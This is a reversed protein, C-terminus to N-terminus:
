TLTYGAALLATAQPATVEVAAHGAWWVQAVDSWGDVLPQGNQYTTYPDVNTVVGVEAPTGKGSVVRYYVNNTDGGPRARYYRMLRAGLVDQDPDGDPLVSPVGSANVPPTFTAM